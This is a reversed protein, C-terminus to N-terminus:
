REHTHVLSIVDVTEEGGEESRLWVQQYEEMLFSGIKDGRIAVTERNDAEIVTYWCWSGKALSLSVSEGGADKQYSVM